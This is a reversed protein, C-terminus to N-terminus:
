PAGPPSRGPARLGACSVMPSQKAYASARSRRSGSRNLPPAKASVSMSSMTSGTLLRRRLSTTAPSVAVPQFARAWVLGRGFLAPSRAAASPVLNVRGLRLVRQGRPRGHRDLAPERGPHAGRHGHCGARDLRAVEDAMSDGRLDLHVRNKVIKREPVKQFLIPPRGADRERPAIAVYQENVDHREYDGMAAIWFPVVVEHDTCDIVIEGVRLTM